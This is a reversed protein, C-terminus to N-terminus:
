PFTTRNIFLSSFEFKLFWGLRKLFTEFRFFRFSSFSYNQALVAVFVKEGVLLRIFPFACQFFMGKTVEGSIVAIQKALFSPLFTVRM